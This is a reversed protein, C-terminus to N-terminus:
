PLSGSRNRRQCGIGMLPLGSESVIMSSRRQIAIKNKSLLASSVSINNFGARGPNSIQKRRRRSIGNVDTDDGGGLDDSCQGVTLAGPIQGRVLSRLDYVFEGIVPRGGIFQNPRVSADDIARHFERPTM